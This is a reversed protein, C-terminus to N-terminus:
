SYSSIKLVKATIATATLPDIVKATATAQARAEAHHVVLTQQREQRVHADAGHLGPLLALLILVIKM